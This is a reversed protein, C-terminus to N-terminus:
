ICIKAKILLEVATSVEEATTLRARRLSSEVSENSAISERVHKFFALTDMKSFNARYLDALMAIGPYDHISRTWRLTGHIESLRQALDRQRSEEKQAVRGQRVLLLRQQRVHRKRELTARAKAVSARREELHKKTSFESDLAKRMEPFLLSLLGNLRTDRSLHENGQEIDANLLRRQDDYRKLCGPDMISRKTDLAFMILIAVGGDMFRSMVARSFRDILPDLADNDIAQDIRHLTCLLGDKAELSRVAGSVLGRRALVNWLDDVNVVTTGMTRPPLDEWQTRIAKLFGKALNLDSADQLWQQYAAQSQRRDAEAQVKAKLEDAILNARRHLFDTAAQTYRNMWPHVIWIKATEDLGVISEIRSAHVRGADHFARAQIELCASGSAHIKQLKDDDIYHTVAAEILLDVVPLNSNGM